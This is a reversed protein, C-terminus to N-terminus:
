ASPRDGPGRRADVGNRRVKTGNCRLKGKRTSKGAAKPLGSYLASLEEATKDIETEWHGRKSQRIVRVSKAWIFEEGDSGYRWQSNKPVFVWCPVGLGGCVHTIATQMCVVHDLAATMAVTDDYDHTLTAHPYEVLDIDPHEKRFAAIEKSAPKYQLSVWHADVSRLIPLLQQLDWQRYKAGTRPIGGRWALGIVPKKKSKFLQEWMFVRDPDPTLYPTGPFDSDKLRFYEGCQGMPLSYDISGEDWKGKKAERTGYVTCQPFSRKFLGELRKDVDLIIDAKEAADPVMSAFSIVDGLGQEAWLVVKGKSKGDWEPENDYVTKPRWETGLCYRYNKWGEKWKRNALQCFGLNAKSKPSEPNLALAQRSIEEADVFRGTDILVAALNVLVKSRQSDRTCFKLARRYYREAEKDRWLDNAAMGLNMWCGSDRPSLETCRKALTYAISPKHSSLMVYVMLALPGIANPNERLHEDAIRYAEDLNGAEAFDRGINIDRM